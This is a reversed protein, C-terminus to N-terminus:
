KKTKKEMIGTVYDINIYQQGAKTQLEIWGDSISQIIGHSSSNNSSVSFVYVDKGIIKSILEETM